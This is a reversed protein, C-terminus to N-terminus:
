DASAPQRMPSSVDIFSDVRGTERVRAGYWGDLTWRLAMNVVSNVSVIGAIYWYPPQVAFNNARLM